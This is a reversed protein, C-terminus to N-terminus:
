CCLTIVTKMCLQTPKPSEVNLYVCMCAKYIVTYYTTRRHLQFVTCPSQLKFCHINVQHQLQENTAMCNRCRRYASALRIFGGVDQSALNDGCFAVLSGRFRRKELGINFNIGGDQLLYMCTSCLTKLM